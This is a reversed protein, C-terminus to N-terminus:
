PAIKTVRSTNKDYHYGNEHLLKAMAKGSINKRADEDRLLPSAPNARALEDKLAQVLANLGAIQAQAFLRQKALTEAEDSAARLKGQLRNAHAEWEDIAAGYRRATANAGLAVGDLTGQQRDYGSM